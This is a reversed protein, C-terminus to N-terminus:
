SKAGQQLAKSFRADQRLRNLEPERRIQEAPYGSRVAAGLANFAHNENGALAYVIAAQFQVEANEPALSLAKKMLRVATETEGLKARCLAAATMATANQPNAQM